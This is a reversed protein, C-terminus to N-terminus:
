HATDCRAAKSHSVVETRAAEAAQEVNRELDFDLDNSRLGLAVSSAHQM